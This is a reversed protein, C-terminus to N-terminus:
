NQINVHNKLTNRTIKIFWMNDPEFLTNMKATNTYKSSPTLEMWSLLQDRFANTFLLFLVTKLIKYTDVQM